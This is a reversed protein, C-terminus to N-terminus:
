HKRYDYDRHMLVVAHDYMKFVKLAATIARGLILAKKSLDLSELMGLAVDGTEKERCFEAARVSTGQKHLNIPSQQSPRPEAKTFLKYSGSDNTASIVGSKHCVTGVATEDCAEVVFIHLDELRSVTFQVISYTDRFDLSLDAYGKDSVVMLIEKATESLIDAYFRMNRNICALRIRVQSMNELISLDPISPMGRPMMGLIVNPVPFKHYKLVSYYM